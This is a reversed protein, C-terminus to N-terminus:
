KLYFKWQKHHPRKGNIVASIKRPDLGHERAFKSQNWFEYTVGEPDVAIKPKGRNNTTNQPTSGDAYNFRWGKHHRYKGVLCLYVNSPNLGHERCFQEKNSFKYTKGKPSVAECDKMRAERTPRYNEEPTVFMCTAPSYVSNGKVKLDKDLHMTENTYRDADWGDVTDVTELFGDLSHWQSTVTVGIAGYFKYSPHNPNYCRQIMDYWTKRLKKYLNNHYQREGPKFIVAM